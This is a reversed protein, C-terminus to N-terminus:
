TPRVFEAQGQLGLGGFNRPQIGQLIQAGNSREQQAGQVQAARGLGASFTTSVDQTNAAVGLLGLAFIKRM